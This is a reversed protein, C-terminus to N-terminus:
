GGNLVFRVPIDVWADVAVGAVRAPQFRWDRVTRLAADDLVQHGSSHALKLETCRGSDDVHARLVAVGELGRRRALLPYPPLPNALTAVDYRAPASAEAKGGSDAADSGAPTAAPTATAAPATATPRAPVTRAAPVPTASMLEISLNMPVAPLAAPAGSASWAAVAGHALGSVVLAVVLKRPHLRPPDANM